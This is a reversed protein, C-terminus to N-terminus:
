YQPEKLMFTTLYGYGLCFSRNRIQKNTKWIKDYLTKQWRSNFEPPDANLYFGIPMIGIIYYFDIQKFELSSASM